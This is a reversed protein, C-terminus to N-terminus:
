EDNAPEPEPEENVERALDAVATGATDEMNFVDKKSVPGMSKRHDRLEKIVATQTALDQAKIKKIAALLLQAPTKAQSIEKMLKVARGHAVLARELATSIKALKEADEYSVRMGDKAGLGKKMENRLAQLGWDVEVYLRSVLTMPDAAIYDEFPVTSVPMERPQNREAAIVSKPRNPVGPPRGRRKKVPEDM